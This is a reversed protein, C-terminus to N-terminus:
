QTVGLETNPGKGSKECSATHWSQLGGKIAVNKLFNIMKRNSNRRIGWFHHFVLTV